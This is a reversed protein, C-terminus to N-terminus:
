KKVSLLYEVSKSLGYDIASVCLMVVAASIIVVMSHNIVTQRSPWSVKSLEKWIGSFYDKTIKILKKM